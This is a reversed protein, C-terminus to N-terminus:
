GVRTFMSFVTPKKGSASGVLGQIHDDAAQGGIRQTRRANAHSHCSTRNAAYSVAAQDKAACRHLM